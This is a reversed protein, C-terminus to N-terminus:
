KANEADTQIQIYIQADGSIMHAFSIDCVSNGHSRVKTPKLLKSLQKPYM